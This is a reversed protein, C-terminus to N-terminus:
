LNLIKEFIDDSKRPKVGEVHYRIYKDLYQILDSLESKTLKKEFISSNGPILSEAVFMFQKDTLLISQDGEPTITLTGSEINIYGRSGSNTEINEGPQLGIGIRDIIRLQIYPFLLRSVQERKNLWSLMNIIFLFLPENVENEHLVQGVLEMTTTTLAMKEIDTRLRDLKLLYSTDSLTQINRTPKHYYVVELVQGPVLFASFKSKPKRAGKAIVSVVGQKRTFLTVILSSERFDIARLVVAETKIIM